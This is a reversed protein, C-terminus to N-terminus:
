SAWSAQGISYTKMDEVVLEEHSIQGRQFGAGEYLFGSCKPVLTKGPIETAVGAEWLQIGLLNQPDPDWTSFAQLAQILKSDRDEM